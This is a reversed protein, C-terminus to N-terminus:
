KKTKKMIEFAGLIQTLPYTIPTEDPILHVTDKDIETVTMCQGSVKHKLQDGPKLKPTRGVIQAKKIRKLIKPITTDSWDLLNGGHVIQCGDGIMEELHQVLVEYDQTLASM